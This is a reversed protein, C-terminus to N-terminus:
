EQLCHRWEVRCEMKHRVGFEAQGVLVLSEEVALAHLIIFVLLEVVEDGFGVDDIHRPHLPFPECVEHFVFLGLIDIYEAIRHEVLSLRRHFDEM